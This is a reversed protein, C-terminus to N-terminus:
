APATSTVFDIIRQRLADGYSSTFLRVGHESGPYSTFQKPQPARDYVERTAAFPVTADAESAVVLKPATLAALEQDTVRFDYEVLDLLSAMLVIAAAGAAGAVKATAIGGLSAGILVLRSAGAQTIFAIAGRLDAVTDNAMAATFGSRRPAYRYSYTLVTYGRAALLPAFDDWLAPDNDGMNSLVVATRGSGYVHGILTAGGDAPINVQRAVVRASATATAPPPASTPIGSGGCAALSVLLCIMPLSRM